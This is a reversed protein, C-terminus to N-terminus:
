FQILVFVYMLIYYKHKYLTFKKHYLKCETPIYLSCHLYDFYAFETCDWHLFYLASFVCIAVLTSTEM